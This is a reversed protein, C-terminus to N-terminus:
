CGRMWVGWVQKRERGEGREKEGAGRPRAETMRRCKESLLWSDHSRENVITRYGHWGDVITWARMEWWRCEEGVGFLLSVGVQVSM